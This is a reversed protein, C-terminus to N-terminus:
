NYIAFMFIYIYSLRTFDWYYFTTRYQRSVFLSLKLNSFLRKNVLKTLYFIRINICIFLLILPIILM